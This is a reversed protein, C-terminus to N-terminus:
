VGEEDQQGRWEAIADCVGLAEDCFPIEQALTELDWGDYDICGDVGDVWEGAYGMGPEWYAARVQWGKKHAAEYVGIPPAWASEFHMRLTDGHRELGEVTVEWKTGWKEVRWDYWDWEDTPRQPQPVFYELLGHYDDPRPERTLYEVLADVQETTGTLEVTNSCWNPM